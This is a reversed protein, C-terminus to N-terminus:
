DKLVLQKLMDVCDALRLPKQLYLPYSFEISQILKNFKEESLSSVFLFEDAIGSFRTWLDIGTKRGALFIDAVIIDYKKGELTMKKVRREAAEESAVWDVHANPMVQSVAKNWFPKFTIDDEMILVHYALQHKLLEPTEPVSKTLKQEVFNNIVRNNM